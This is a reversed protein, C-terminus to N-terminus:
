LLSQFSYSCFYFKILQNNSRWPLGGVFIDVCEHQLVFRPNLLMKSLCHGFLLLDSRDFLQTHILDSLKSVLCQLNYRFSYFVISREYTNCIAANGNTVLTGFPTAATAFAIQIEITKQHRDRRFNEVANHNM